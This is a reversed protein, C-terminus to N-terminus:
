TGLPVILVRSAMWERGGTHFRPWQRGQRFAHRGRVRTKVVLLSNAARVPWRGQGAGNSARRGSEDGKKRRAFGVIVQTLRPPSAQGCRPWCARSEKTLGEIPIRGGGPILFKQIKQVRDASRGAPFNPSRANLERRGGDADLRTPGKLV